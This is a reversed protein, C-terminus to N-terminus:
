FVEFVNSDATVTKTVNNMVDFSWVTDLRYKGKPLACKMPHTWWDLTLPKPFTANPRYSSSGYATCFVSVGGDDVRRVTAVWSGAFPRRIERSVSMIIPQGEKTDSVTVSAVKFWNEAPEREAFWPPLFIVGVAVWPVVVAFAKGFIKLAVKM